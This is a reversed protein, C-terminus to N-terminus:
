KCEPCGSCTIEKDENDEKHETNESVFDVLTQSKTYIIKKNKVKTDFIIDSGIENVILYDALSDSVLREVTRRIERAGYTESYGEDLILKKVSKSFHVYIKKSNLYGNIKILELDVIKSCTVRDINNFFVTGTLRNLFEPKFVGKIAKGIVINKRKDTVKTVDGFGITSKIGQVDKAGINSTMLILTDKFSVTEGHNDTLTGEDMVQLMLQHVKESAKEVEDFLVVSFPKKLIANTLIGGEDSRVYGAPSGILKAYEHDSSYESCDIRIFGGDAEKKFLSDALVKALLTKGVGTRGALLFSGIPSRPEKIGIKSRKIAKVITTIAEGQGVVSESLEDELGVMKEPSIDKLAKYDTNQTVKKESSSATNTKKGIKDYAISPNTALCLMYMEDLMQQPTFKMLLGFRDILSFVAEIDKVFSTVIFSRYSPEDNYNGLSLVKDITNKNFKRIILYMTLRDWWKKEHTHKIKKVEVMTKVIHDDLEQGGEEDSIPAEETGVLEDLTKDDFVVENKPRDVEWLKNEILPYGDVITEGDDVKIIGFPNIVLGDPNLLPNVDYLKNLVEERFKDFSSVLNKNSNIFYLLQGINVIYVSLIYDEYYGKNILSREKSFIALESEIDEKNAMRMIRVSMGVTEFPVQIVEYKTEEM